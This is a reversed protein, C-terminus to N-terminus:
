AVDVEGLVGHLMQFLFDDGVDGVCVARIKVGNVVKPGFSGDFGVLVNSQERRLSFELDDEHSRLVPEILIQHPSLPPSLTPTPTHPLKGKQNLPFGRKKGKKIYPSFLPFGRKQNTLSFPSPLALTTYKHV